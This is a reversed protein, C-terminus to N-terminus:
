LCRRLPIMVCALQVLTVFMNIYNDNRVEVRRYTRIWAFAGEVVYRRLMGMEESAMRTLTSQSSSWETSFGSGRKRFM